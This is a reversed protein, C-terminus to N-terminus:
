NITIPLLVLGEIIQYWKVTSFINLDEMWDMGVWCIAMWMLSYSTELKFVFGIQNAIVIKSFGKVLKYDLHTTNM